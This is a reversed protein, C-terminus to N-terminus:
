LGALTRLAKALAPAVPMVSLRSQTVLPFEKFRADAKITALTVPSKAAAVPTLMVAAFKIENRDNLGPRAPDQIPASKIRALGVISKESGTHYILVDDGARCTRLHILAQPNSVGTWLTSGDRVLDAYSYETPETKFLFTPM